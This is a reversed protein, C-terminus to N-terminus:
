KEFFFISNPFLLMDKKVIVKNVQHNAKKVAFGKKNVSAAHLLVGCLLLISSFLIILSRKM